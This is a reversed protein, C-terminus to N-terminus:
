LCPSGVECMMDQNQDLTQAPQKISTVKLFTLVKFPTIASAAKLTTFNLEGKSYVNEHQKKTSRKRKSEESDQEVSYWM